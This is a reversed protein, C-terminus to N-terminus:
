ATVPALRAGHRERTPVALMLLGALVLGAGAAAVAGPREGLM